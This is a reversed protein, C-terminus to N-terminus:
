DDKNIKKLLEYLHTVSQFAYIKELCIGEQFVLLCPVSEISYKEAMEPMYNLDAKRFEFQPVLNEVIDLMRGAVQCTGCLPTYFYLALQKIKRTNETIEEKTWEKM